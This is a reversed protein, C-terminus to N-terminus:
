PSHQSRRALSFRRYVWYVLVGAFIHGNLMMLFWFFWPTRPIAGVVGERNPNGNDMGVYDGSRKDHALASDAIPAVKATRGFELLSRDTSFSVEKCEVGDEVVAGVFSKWVATSSVMATGNTLTGTNSMEFSPSGRWEPVFSAERVVFSHATDVKINWVGSRGPSDFGKAVLFVMGSGEATMSIVDTICESFCRGMAWLSQNVALTPTPDDASFLTVVEVPAQDLIVGASDCLMRQFVVRRFRESPSFHYIEEVLIQAILNGKENYDAFRSSGQPVILPQVEALRKRHLVVEEGERTMRWSFVGGPDSPRMFHPGIQIEGSLTLADKYVGDVDRMSQLLSNADQGSSDDKVSSDDQLVVFGVLSVCWLSCFIAVVECGGSKHGRESVVRVFPDRVHLSAM